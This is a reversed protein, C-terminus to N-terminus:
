QAGLRKARKQAVRLLVLYGMLDTVTDEDDGVGRGIRSIKDDIRVKLATVADGPSFVNIPTLASDGYKRNKAVLLEVLSEVVERVDADFRNEPTPDDEEVLEVEYGELPGGGEWILGANGAYVCGWEDVEDVTYVASPDFEEECYGGYSAWAEGVLRVKDGVKFETM